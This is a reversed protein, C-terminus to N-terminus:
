SSLAVLIEQVCAEANRFVEKAAFREVRWGARRLERERRREYEFEEPTRDHYKRGDVEVWLWVSASDRLIVFDSCYTSEGDETDVRFQPILVGFEGRLAPYRGEYMFVEPFYHRLELYLPREAESGMAENFFENAKAQRAEEVGEEVPVWIPGGEELCKRALRNLLDYLKPAEKKRRFLVESGTRKIKERVRVIDTYHESLVQHTSLEVDHALGSTMCSSVTVPEGAMDLALEVAFLAAKCNSVVGLRRAHRRKDSFLVAAAADGPNGGRLAIHVTGRLSTTM